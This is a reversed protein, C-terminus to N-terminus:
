ERVGKSMSVRGRLDPLAFSTKGDGGYTTGILAFLSQYQQIPLLQGNCQAWNRPAFGYAMPRVDGIYDEQELPDM